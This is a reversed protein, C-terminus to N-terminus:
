EGEGYKEKMVTWATKGLLYMGEDTAYQKPAEDWGSIFSSFKNRTLSPFLEVLCDFVYNEECDDQTLDLLDFRIGEANEHHALLVATLGCCTVPNQGEGSTYFIGQEPYASLKEFSDEILDCTLNM